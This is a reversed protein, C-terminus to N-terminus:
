NKLAIIHHEGSPRAAPEPATAGDHVAHAPHIVYGYQRLLSLVSESSDGLHTHLECIIIPAHAALVERMGELVMGENGEVDIKLIDPKRYGEVKVLHDISVTSVQEVNETTHYHAQTGILRGSFAGGRRDFLQKGEGSAVARTDLKVKADPNLGLSIQFCLYNNKEPEFAYVDGDAGVLSAFLYSFVGVNAGIDYASM